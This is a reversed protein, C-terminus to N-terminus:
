PNTTREIWRDVTFSVGTDDIESDRLSADYNFNAKVHQLFAEAIVSGFIEVDNHLEVEADPAYITGYFTGSNLFDINQCTNTGFISLNKPDASENNITCSNRVLLDGGLYLELGADPNTVSDVITIVASNGLTTDGVIYLVVDGDIKLTKGQGNLNIQDYKGSETIVEGGSISGKSEALLLSLPVVVEPMDWRVPMPYIDGLVEAEKKSDVVIDIVGDPGIVLDGVITSDNKMSVALPETSNTGIQLPRDDDPPFNYGSISTGMKFEISDDAFLAYEYLGELRLTTSVTRQMIGSQGTSEITYGKVRDGAITFFYNANCNPLYTVPEKPLEGDNWIEDEELKTNMLKMAHALGADAAVRAAMEQVSRLAKMKSHYGLSMMSIGMITLVVTMLVVVSLVSGTRTNSHIKHKSRM